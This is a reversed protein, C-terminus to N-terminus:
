DIQEAAGRPEFDMVRRPLQLGRARLNVLVGHGVREADRERPSRQQVKCFPLVDHRPPCSWETDLSGDARPEPSEARPLVQPRREFPHKQIPAAFGRELAM